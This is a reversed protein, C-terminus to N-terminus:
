TLKIILCIKILKNETKGPELQYKGHSSKIRVHQNFAKLNATQHLNVDCPTVGTYMVDTFTQLTDRYGALTAIHRIIAFQQQTPSCILRDSQQKM